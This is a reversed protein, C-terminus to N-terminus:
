RVTVVPGFIEDVLTISKADKTLIVTPQIFYGRSDDGKFFFNDGFRDAVFALHLFLCVQDELLSKM